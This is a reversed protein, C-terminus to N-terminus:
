VTVCGDLKIRLVRHTVLITRICECDAPYEESGLHSDWPTITGACPFWTGAGDKIAETAVTTLKGVKSQTLKSLYRHPVCGPLHLRRLAAAHSTRQATGTSSACTCAPCQGTHASYM